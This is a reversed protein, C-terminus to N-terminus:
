MLVMKRTTYAEAFGDPAACEVARIRLLTALVEREFWPKKQQSPFHDCLHDLKASAIREPLTVYLNPQVVDGDKKLIEYELILHDRLVQGTLDAM